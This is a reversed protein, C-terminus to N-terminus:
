GAPSTPQFWMAESSAALTLTLTLTPTPTPTPTLTPTPTPTLTRILSLTPLNPTTGVQPAVSVDNMFEKVEDANRAVNWLRVEDIFGDWAYKGPLGGVCLDGKSHWGAEVTAEEEGM